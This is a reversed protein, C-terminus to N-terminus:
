SPVETLWKRLRALARSLQKKITGIRLGTTDAIAKVSNGDVYRLVMVMREHEPLRSLQEIVEEYRQIWNISRSEEPDMVKSELPETRRKRQMQFARHRVIKLLWPGFAAANHLQHLKTYSSVFGDQAADQALALDGLVAQATIIAARQYLGVLQAFAAKDGKRVAKVLEETTPM